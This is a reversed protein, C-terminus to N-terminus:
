RLDGAEDLIERDILASVMDEVLGGLAVLDSVSVEVQRTEEEGKDTVTIQAADAWRHSGDAWITVKTRIDIRRWEDEYSGSLDETTTTIARITM